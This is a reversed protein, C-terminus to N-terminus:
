EEEIDECDILFLDCDLVRKKRTAWFKITKDATLQASLISEIREHPALVQVRQVNGAVRLDCYVRFQFLGYIERQEWNDIPPAEQPTICIEVAIHSFHPIRFDDYERKCRPECAVNIWQGLKLLDKWNKIFPTEEMLKASIVIKHIGKIPTYCIIHDNRIAVICCWAFTRDRGSPKENTLDVINEYNPETIPPSWREVPNNMDAAIFQVSLNPAPSESLTNSCGGPELLFDDETKDFYYDECTQKPLSPEDPLVFSYSLYDRKNVEDRNVRWKQNGPTRQPHFVEVNAAFRRNGSM